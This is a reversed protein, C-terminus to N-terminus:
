LWKVIGRLIEILSKHPKRRTKEKKPRLIRPEEKTRTDEALPKIRIERWRIFPMGTVPNEGRQVSDPIIAYGPAPKPGETMLKAFQRQTLPTKEPEPRILNRSSRIRLVARRDEITGPLHYQDDDKDSEKTIYDALQERDPNDDLVEVNARSAEASVTEWTDAILSLSDGRFANCIMHVHIGGLRGVEIRAIWKFAQKEKKYAIRMRRCFTSLDKSVEEVSKRTGKRYKLCIWPDGKGFNAEILLRVAKKRKARNWREIQEPTAKQSRGKGTQKGVYGAEAERIDGLMYQRLSFAM